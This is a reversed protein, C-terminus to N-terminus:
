FPQERMWKRITEYTVWVKALAQNLTLKKGNPNLVSPSTYALVADLIDVRGLKVHVNKEKGGFKGRTWKASNKFNALSNPNMERKKKIVLEEM